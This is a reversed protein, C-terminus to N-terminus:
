LGLREKTRYMTNRGIIYHDCSATPMYQLNDWPLNTTMTLVMTVAKRWTQRARRLTNKPPM